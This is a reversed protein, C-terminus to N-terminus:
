LITCLVQANLGLSTGIALGDYGQCAFVIAAAFWLAVAVVNLVRVVKSDKNQVVGGVQRGCACTFAEGAPILRRGCPCSVIETRHVLRMKGNDRVRFVLAM